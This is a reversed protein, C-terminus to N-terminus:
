PEAIGKDTRGTNEGNIEETLRNLVEYKLRTQNGRLGSVKKAVRATYGWALVLLFTRQPQPLRALGVAVDILEDPDESGESMIAWVRSQTYEGM